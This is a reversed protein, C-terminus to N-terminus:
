LGRNGPRRTQIADVLEAVRQSYPIWVRPGTKQEVIVIKAFRTRRIRTLDALLMVPKRVMTTVELAESHVVIEFALRFNWWFATWGFFLSGLLMGARGLDTKATM